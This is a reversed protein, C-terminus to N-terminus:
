QAVRVVAGSIEGETEGKLADMLLDIIHSIPETGAQPPLRYGPPAAAFQVPINIEAPEHSNKRQVIRTCDYLVDM